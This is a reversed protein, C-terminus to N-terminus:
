AGGTLALRTATLGVIARECITLHASLDWLDNQTRGAIVDLRNGRVANAPSEAGEM